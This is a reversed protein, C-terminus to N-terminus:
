LDNEPTSFARELLACDSAAIRLCKMSLCPLASFASAATSSM